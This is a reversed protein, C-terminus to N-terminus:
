YVKLLVMAMCLVLICNKFVYLEYLPQEMRRKIVSYNSWPFLRRCVVVLENVGGKM